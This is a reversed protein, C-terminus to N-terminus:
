DQLYITTAFTMVNKSCDIRTSYVFYMFVLIDKSFLAFNAGLTFILAM